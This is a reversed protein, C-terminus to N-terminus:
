SASKPNIGRQAVELVPVAMLALGLLFLPWNFWTPLMHRLGNVGSGAPGFVLHIADAMFVYLAVLMGSLAAALAPWRPWLPIELSDGRIILTGFVSMLVAISIPAWVPGWWPLPLLFLIDWDAMSVPWDTLPILWLYYALDWIGFALLGYAIRTRWTAGALWGVTGLMVLTAAERILEAPALRAGSLPLPHPQYPVIRDIMTRLYFVVASEVWAMALAFLAVACWTSLVTKRRAGQLSDSQAATPSLSNM